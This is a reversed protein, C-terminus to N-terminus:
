HEFIGCKIYQVHLFLPPQSLVVGTKTGWSVNLYGFEPLQVSQSYLIKGPSHIRIRM